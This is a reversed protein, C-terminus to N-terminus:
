MTKAGKRGSGTRTASWSAGSAEGSYGYIHRGFEDRGGSHLFGLTEDHNRDRAGSYGQIHRGLADKAGSRM